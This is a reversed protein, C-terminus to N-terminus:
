PQAEQLGAIAFREFSQNLSGGKIPPIAIRPEIERAPAATALGALGRDYEAIRQQLVTSRRFTPRRREDRAAQPSAGNALAERARPAFPNRVAVVPLPLISRISSDNMGTLAVSYLLTSDAPHAGWRKRSTWRRVRESFFVAGVCISAVDATVLITEMTLHTVWNM